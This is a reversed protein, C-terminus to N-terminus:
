LTNYQIENVYGELYYKNTLKQYYGYLKEKSKVNFEVKVSNFGVINELFYYLSSTCGSGCSGTEKFVGREFTRVNLSNQKKLINIFNINIGDKDYNDQYYSYIIQSMMEFNNDEIDFVNNTVDIILHPVGTVCAFINKIFINSNLECNLIENLNSKLNKDINIKYPNPMQSKVLNNDYFGELSNFFLKKNPLNKLHYYTITRLGNGCFNVKNGDKNYYEWNCNLYEDKYNYENIFLYGDIKPYLDKFKLVLKNKESIEGEIVILINGSANYIRFKVDDSTDSIDSVDYDTYFNNSKLVTDIMKIAGNAFIDRNKAKHVIEMIEDGNEFILRHEGFIEGERISDIEIDKIKSALMKATGSPKDKKHIHHYEVMKFKWEDKNEINDIFKKFLPIGNSFNSILHIAIKKDNSYMKLQNIQKNNFGTTGILLKTSLNNKNLYDLIDFTGTPSSVDIILDLNQLDNLNDRSIGSVIYKNNDLLQNYIKSGLRGKFGFVGIKPKNFNMLNNKLRIAGTVLDTENYFSFSLRAYNKFNKSTSFKDGNHYKVKNNNININYDLLKKYDYEKEEGLKLWIFYGGEPIIFDFGLEKLKSSLALCRSKLMDRNNKLIKNLDNNNIAWEVILSGLLSTGGSSDLSAQSSLINIESLDSLKENQYIWGVRLSPALIKSFSGISIFNSHYDAMPSFKKDSWNLFHYTEDAIISFHPYKDALTALSIRKDDSLTASTPNHCTPICYFYVSDQGQDLVYNINDELHKLDVGDNTMRVGKITCGYEQFMKVALFYSPEEVLIIEGQNVFRTILLQLAGTAGPTIFLENKNVKNYISYNNENLWNALNLRFSEYGSIQSYQLVEKDKIQNALNALATTFFDLPLNDTEPQGVGFNVMDIAKSVFYQSYKPTNM